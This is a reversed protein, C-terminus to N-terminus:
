RDTVFMSGHKKQQNSTVYDDSHWVNKLEDIKTIYLHLTFSPHLKDSFHRHRLDSKNIAAATAARLTRLMSSKQMDSSPLWRLSCPHHARISVRTDVTITQAAQHQHFGARFAPDDATTASADPMSICHATGYVATHAVPRM